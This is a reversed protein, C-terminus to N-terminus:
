REMVGIGAQRQITLKNDPLLLLLRLLVTAPAAQLQEVRAVVKAAAGPADLEGLAQALQVGVPDAPSHQPDHAGSPYM